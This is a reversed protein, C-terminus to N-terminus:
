RSLDNIRNQLYNSFYGQYKKQLEPIKWDNGSVIKRCNPSNCNCAFSYESSETMAYDIALEENTKIDRMTVIKLKDKIGCNPNCSHNFLDADETENKETAAFFLDDDVQIMHDLGKDYIEDAEKTTVFKGFGTTYDAVVEGKKIEEIAFLGRGSKSSNQLKIKSSLFSPM